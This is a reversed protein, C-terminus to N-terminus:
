VHLNTTKKRAVELLFFKAKLRVVSLTQSVTRSAENLIRVIRVGADLAQTNAPLRTSSDVDLPGIVQRFESPARLYASPKNRKQCFCCICTLVVDIIVVVVGVVVGVVVVAIGSIDRPFYIPPVSM